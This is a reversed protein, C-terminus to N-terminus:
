DLLSGIGYGILGGLAAGGIAGLIAGVPGLAAGLVGGVIGGLLGGFIGLGTSANGFLPGRKGGLVRWNCATLRQLAAVFPDYDRETVIEGRGMVDASEERNTGYCEDSNTSCHVHPLGLLHGAEHTVTTQKTRLDSGPRNVDPRYFTSSTAGVGSRAGSPKGYFVNITNYQGSNVPQVQVIAMTAQCPEGACAQAPELLFRFSWRDTVARIFANQWRTQEPATWRSPTQTDSFNFKVPISLTLRCPENAGARQQRMASTRDLEADFRTVGRVQMGALISRQPAAPAPAPASQPQAPPATQRQITHPTRSLPPSSNRDPVNRQSLRNAEQEAASNPDDLEISTSTPAASQQLVHALEHALLQQGAPSAPAFQEPAFVIDHGYTFARAHLAEAADGARRDTHLRVRSFDHGFQKESSARTAADLPVGPTQLADRVLASTFSAENREPASGTRSRQLREKRCNECEGTPGPTGGCACKRQLLRSSVRALVPQPLNVSRQPTSSTRTKM